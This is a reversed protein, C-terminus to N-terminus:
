KLSAIRVNAEPDQLGKVFINHLTDFHPRLHDGITETLSNFLSM